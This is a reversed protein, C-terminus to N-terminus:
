PQVAANEVQLDLVLGNNLFKEIHFPLTVGNVQRYDSYRIVIPIDLSEDKDPHIAFSLSTPQLSSPSLSLKARSLNSIRQAPLTENEPSEFLTLAQVATDQDTESRVSKNLKTTQVQLALVPVLWNLPLRCNHQASKHQVGDSGTWQCHPVPSFAETTETRTREGLNLQLTSEGTSQITATFTGSPQLSGAYAKATGNLQVQRVPTAAFAAVAQAAVIDPSVPPAQSPVQAWVLSSCLLVAFLFRSM